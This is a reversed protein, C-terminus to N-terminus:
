HDGPYFPEVHVVVERVSPWESQIRARVHQAIQHSADVTIQPDVEIDIDVHADPGAHQIRIKEVGLVGEVAMAAQRVRAFDEAQPVRDLLQNMNERSAILGLVVMVGALLTGGAHDLQSSWNPFFAAALLTLMAIASTLTDIQFHMAESQLASSRTRQSVRRLQWSVGTLALTALGPVIWTWGPLPGHQPHSSIAFLNRTGMWLGTGALLLALQFGALPEARGHGFPHSHDPPRAAFRIAALLILSSVVDFLSSVADVLLASSHSFAVALLEVVIVIMRVAIGIVTARTADDRRSQRATEIHPLTAVPPPFRDPEIGTVIPPVSPKM